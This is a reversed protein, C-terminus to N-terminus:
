KLLFSFEFPRESLKVEEEPGINITLWYLYDQDWHYFPPNLLNLVQKFNSIKGKFVPYDFTLLDVPIEGAPSFLGIQINKLRAPTKFWFHYPRNAQPLSFNGPVTLQAVRSLSYFTIIQNEPWRKKVPHTLILRPYYAFWFLSLFLCLLVFFIKFQFNLTIRLDFKLQTLGLFILFLGLWIYNPLWFSEEIKLFSPLIQPLSFHLNSLLLFLGGARDTTGATTEQYLYLPYFLLLTTIILSYILALRALFALSKKSNTLFFYGLFLSFGWFSAVLPRAQPAYGARQTLFASFLFYPWTLLIIQWALKNKQRLMILLGVFALLYIPAYLLLGDRQDLFYGVLTEWRFRFPISFLIFKLFAFSEESGMAGQWSVSTPNFSGYLSKQFAFYALTGTVFPCLFIFSNKLKKATKFIKILALLFLPIIIFIYKIAHFWFSFSLFLGCLALLYPKSEPFKTLWRFIILSFCAIIIEPYIHLSYFFIPSTFASIAWLKLALKEGWGKQKLLLFIQWCFLAGWLGIGVRPLFTIAPRGLLRGLFYFPLILFSVGPSHFSLRSGPKAGPVTHPQIIVGPRLFQQYDRQDYNNALDFDHDILLSHAIILYHPEDGSFDAGRYNLVFAGLSFAIFAILFLLTSKKQASQSQFFAIFREKLVLKGSWEKFFLIQLWFFFGVVLFLYLIFRKNLDNRTMFHNLTLPAFSLFIFPLLSYANNKIIASLDQRSFRYILLSGFFWLFLIVMLALLFFPFLLRWSLVPSHNIINFNKAESWLSFFLSLSFASASALSVSKLWSLM